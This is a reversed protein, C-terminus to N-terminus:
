GLTRKKRKYVDLLETIGSQLCQRAAAVNGVHGGGGDADVHAGHVLPAPQSGQAPVDVRVALHQRQSRRWSFVCTTLTQRHRM